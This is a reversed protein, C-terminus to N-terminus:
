ITGEMRLKALYEEDYGLFEQLVQDTHEGLLPPAASIRAPTGSMKPVPGLLTVPGTEAHDITQVMSRAEAQPHRLATPIDNVAGAPVNAARLMTLWQATTRKGFIQELHQMLEERHAVRAPNTAFRAQGALEPQDLCNCLRAFQADNGVALMLWGDATAVTQYPVIAAHGNGYRQPTEGTVFYATAVNALWSLQTDFLALDIYQGQGTRTRHHLAALIAFAAQMGTTIDVIAVGVKYPEGTNGSPGTISMVGGM